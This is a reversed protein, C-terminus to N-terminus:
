ISIFFGRMPGGRMQCQGVLTWNEWSCGPRHIEPPPPIHHPSRPQLLDSNWELLLAVGLGGM